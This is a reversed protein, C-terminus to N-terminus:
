GQPKRRGLLVRFNFPRVHAGCEARQPPREGGVPTGPAVPGPHAAEGIRFGRYPWGSWQKRIPTTTATNDPDFDSIHQRFGSTILCNQMGKSLGGPRINEPM